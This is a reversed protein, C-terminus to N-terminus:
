SCVGTVDGHQSHVNDWSAQSVTMTTRDNSSGQSVHCIVLNGELGLVGIGTAGSTASPPPPEVTAPEITSTAEPPPETTSTTPVFTVVTTSTPMATAPVTTATNTAGPETAPPVRNNRPTLIVPTFPVFTAAVTPTGSGTVPVLPCPQLTIPFELCNAKDVCVNLTFSANQAGRCLLIRRGNVEQASLCTVGSNPEAVNFFAQSSMILVAHTEDNVCFQCQLSVVDMGTIPIAPAPTETSIATSPPIATSQEAASLTASPTSPLGAPLTCATALFLLSIAGISVLRSLMKM